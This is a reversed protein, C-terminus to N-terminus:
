PTLFCAFLTPCSPGNFFGEFTRKEYPNDIFVGFELVVQRKSRKSILVFNVLLVKRQM